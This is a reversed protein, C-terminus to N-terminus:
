RKAKPKVYDPLNFISLAVSNTRSLETNLQALV